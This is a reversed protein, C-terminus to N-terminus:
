LGAGWATGRFPCGAVPEPAPVEPLDRLTERSATLFARKLPDGRPDCGLETAYLTDRSVDHLVIRRRRWWGMSFSKLTWLVQDTDVVNRAVVWFTVEKEWIGKEQDFIRRAEAVTARALSGDLEPLVLTYVRHHPEGENSVGYCA